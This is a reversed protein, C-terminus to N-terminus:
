SLASWQWTGGGSASITYAPLNKFIPASIVYQQGVANLTYTSGDSMTITIIGAATQVITLNRFGSPVDSNQGASTVATCCANNDTHRDISALLRIMENYKDRADGYQM